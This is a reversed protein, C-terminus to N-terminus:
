PLLLAQETHCPRSGISIKGYRPWQCNLQCSNSHFCCLATWRLLASQLDATTLSTRSPGCSTGWLRRTTYQIRVRGAHVIEHLKRLPTRIHAHSRSTGTHVLTLLNSVLVTPVHISAACYSMRTKMKRIINSYKPRSHSLYIIPIVEYYPASSLAHAHAHM